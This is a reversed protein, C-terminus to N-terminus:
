QSKGLAKVSDVVILSTKAAMAQYTLRVFHPSLFIRAVVDDVLLALRYMSHRWICRLITILYYITGAFLEPRSPRGMQPALCGPKAAVLRGSSHSDVGILQGCNTMSGALITLIKHRVTDECGYGSRRLVNKKSGGSQNTVLEVTSVVSLNNISM